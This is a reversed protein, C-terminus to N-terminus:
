TKHANKYHTRRHYPTRFKKDCVNCKYIKGVDHHVWRYHNRLIQESKLIADCKECQIKSNDHSKMHAQLDKKKKFSHQCLDCKFRLNGKIETQLYIKYHIYLKHKELTAASKFKKLCLNCEIKNPAHVNKIHSKLYWKKIMEGCYKCRVLKIDTHKNKIHRKFNHISKIKVECYSCQYLIELPLEKKVDLKEM